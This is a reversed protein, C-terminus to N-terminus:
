FNKKTIMFIIIFFINVKKFINQIWDSFFFVKIFPVILWEFIVFSNLTNSLLISDNIGERKFSIIAKTPQSYLHLYFQINM